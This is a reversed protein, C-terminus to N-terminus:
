RRSERDLVLYAWTCGVIASCASGLLTGVKGAHLLVLDANEFALHTIFLSMTFGIGGLCGGAIMLNWSVGAPLRALGTKVGLWCVSVIGLPKGILLGLTVALAVPHRLLALDIVVGANALAFLPMIGFAVWPHWAKELRQLPSVSERAALALTAVMQEPKKASHRLRDLFESAVQQLTEPSIWASAPTLLGLLVGAVTPHIGSQLVALWIGAGVLTYIAVSRVGVKNLLLVLLFGLLAIGLPLWSLGQVYFLAIVLIAGIDDGIALSLLFIKLGIPVRPGLLALFGVVFAIDTAMPIGWGHVGAENWQLVLYITAPVIMGGIAGLIPLAAKRMDRLEGYVVERKVELGIVFFFITMLGDNIWEELTLSREFDGLGLKIKIHWFHLYGESYPSNALVLAILTCILLVIGSAAQTHLFQKLPQTWRRIPTAPLTSSWNASSDHTDM